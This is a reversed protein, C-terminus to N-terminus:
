AAVPQQVANTRKLDATMSHYADLKKKLSSLQPDDTGNLGQEVQHRAYGSYAGALAGAGIVGTSLELYAEPGMKALDGWNIVGSKLFDEVESPILGCDSLGMAFGLKIGDLAEKPTFPGTLEVIDAPSLDIDPFDM